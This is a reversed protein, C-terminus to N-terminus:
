RAPEAMRTGQIPVTLEPVRSSGTKLTLTGTFPGAALAATVRLEVRWVHGSEVPLLRAELGAIDSSVGSIDIPEAGFNKVVLAIIPRDGETMKVDPLDVKPPTVAFLPRVFGSVPLFARPQRPHTTRILIYGGIPGIPAASTITLQIQWQRGQLDPQREDPKLERWTARIYALPSDVGLVEMPSDDAASVVHTTGGEPGYQVFTFRAAPPTLVLFARVDAHVTLELSGHEPDNTLVNVRWDSSTGTQFTDVALRVAGSASPAITRDLRVLRLGRPVYTVTLELPADGNNRIPFEIEPDTGIGVIGFDHAAKDLVARPHPAAPKAATQAAAQARAPAAFALAIAIAIAVPASITPQFM